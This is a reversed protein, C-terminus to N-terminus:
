PPTLLAEFLAPDYYVLVERVLGDRLRIRDIGSLEVPCSAGARRAVWRIFLHDGNTAHEAVDLRLDPVQDLLRAVRARYQTVGRVPAVDGPWHGVVDPTVVRAALAPHPNAWLAAWHEVGFRLRAPRGTGPSNM